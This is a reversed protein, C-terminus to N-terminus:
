IIILNLIFMFIKPDIATNQNPQKKIPGNASISLVMTCIIPQNKIIDPPMEKKIKQFALFYDM